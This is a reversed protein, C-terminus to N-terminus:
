CGSGVIGNVVGLITVFLIACLVVVALGMAGARSAHPHSFLRGVLIGALSVLAGLALLAIVAWKMWGVLQDQYHQMGPPAQPCVVALSAKLARDTLETIM